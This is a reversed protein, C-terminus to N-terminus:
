IPSRVTLVPKPCLRVVKEAVSGLLVHDLGTRGHTGLVILDYDGKDAHELICTAPDGDDVWARGIQGAHETVKRLYADMDEQSRERLLTTLSRDSKDHMVAFEPPIVEPKRFVHLLDVTGGSTRAFEAAIDLAAKSCPAYDVAVLIRRFVPGMSLPMIGPCLATRWLCSM